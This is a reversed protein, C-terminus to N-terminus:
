NGTLSGNVGSGGGERSAVAPCLSGIDGAGSGVGACLAGDSAVLLALWVSVRCTAHASPVLALM